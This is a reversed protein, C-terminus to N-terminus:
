VAHQYELPSPLDPVAGEDRGSLAQLYIYFGLFDARLAAGKLSQACGLPYPSQLGVQLQAMEIKYVLIRCPTFNIPSYYLM